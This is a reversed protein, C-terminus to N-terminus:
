AHDNELNIISITVHTGPFAAEGTRLDKVTINIDALGSAQLTQIRDKIIQMGRSKHGKRQFKKANERGIGNDKIECILKEGSKSIQIQLLGRGDRRENLGHNIANEIYPQILMSPIYSDEMRIVPSIQMEVEFLNEFRLKELETYIKLLEVEESLPIMKERSSDLYKRMLRAFQTLYNDATEVEQAQIYYQIAGLANFVFHPNMQARLASLELEAMRRNIGQEHAIEEKHIKERWFFLAAILGMGILLILLIFPATKWFPRQIRFNLPAMQAINGFHDEAELYFSYEGPPLALYNVYRERTSRWATDVPELKTYYTIDGQSALAMLHFDIELNNEDSALKLGEISNVQEGNVKVSQIQLDSNNILSQYEAERDILHLGETTAAYLYRSGDSAVDLVEDTFLGDRSSFYVADQDSHLQPIIWVGENSAVLLTSDTDPRINRIHEIQYLQHLKKAQFDWIFLGNSETGIWLVDATGYLASVNSLRPNNVQIPILSDSTLEYIGLANGAFMKKQQPHYYINTVDAQYISLYIENESRFERLEVRTNSASYLTQEEPHWGVAHQNLFSTRLDKNIEAVSPSFLNTFRQEFLSIKPPLHNGELVLGTKNGSVFIRDECRVVSRLNMNREPTHLLNVEKEQIHYVGLNDSFAMLDGRHSYMLQEFVGDRFGHPTLTEIKRKQAPVMFLGGERSAQWINGKSDKFTRLFSYIEGWNGWLWKDTANGYFDYEVFGQDTTIIVTSDLVTAAISTSASPLEDQIRVLRSKVKEIDLFIFELPNNGILYKQTLGLQFIKVLRKVTFGPYVPTDFRIKEGGKEWYIKGADHLYLLFGDGFNFGSFEKKVHFYYISDQYIAFMNQQGINEEEPQWNAPVKKISDLRFYEPESILVEYDIMRPIVVPSDQFYTLYRWPQGGFYYAKGDILSTHMSVMRDDVITIQDKYLYAPRNKYTWLWIKGTTDKLAYVVDMGPLGDEVTFHQFEYGDFKALGSETYAWIYGDEDEVVGYVYNSPLGDDTTYQVFDHHQPYLHQLPFCVGILFTLYIQIRLFLSQFGISRLPSLSQLGPRRFPFPSEWQTEPANM